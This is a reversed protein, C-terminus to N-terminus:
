PADAALVCGAIYGDCVCKGLTIGGSVYFSRDTLPTACNGVAFLHGMPNGHEDLCNGRVDTDCEGVTDLIARSVEIAYFPPQANPRTLIPSDESFTSWNWNSVKAEKRLADDQASVFNLVTKELEKKVSTLRDPHGKALEKALDSILSEQSDFTLMYDEYRHPIPSGAAGGFQKLTQADFIVFARRDGQAEARQGYSSFENVFRKGLDNVMFMHDGSLFWTQLRGGSWSTATATRVQKKWLARRRLPRPHVIGDLGLNTECTCAGIITKGDPMSKVTTENAGAGGSALVVDNALTQSGDAFEALWRTDQRTLRVLRKGLLVRVGKKSLKDLLQRILAAGNGRSLYGARSALKSVKPDLSAKLGSEDISTQFSEATAPLSLKPFVSRAIGHPNNTTDYDTRFPALRTDIGNAECFARNKPVISAMVTALEFELGQDVLYDMAETTYRFYRAVFQRERTTLAAGNDSQIFREFQALTEKGGLNRKWANNPVYIGGGSLATTGGPNQASDVCVVRRTECARLATTLGACGTGIVLVDTTAELDKRRYWLLIALMMCFFAGGGIALPVLLLVTSM